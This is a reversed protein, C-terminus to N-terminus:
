NHYFRITRWLVITSILIASTLVAATIVGSFLATTSRDQILEGLAELGEQQRIIREQTESQANRLSQSKEEIKKEIDDIKKENGIKLGNERPSFEKVIVDQLQTTVRVREAEPAAFIAFDRSRASCAMPIYITGAKPLRLRATKMGTRDKCAVNLEENRDENTIFSFRKHDIEHIVTPMHHIECGASDCTFNAAYVEVRRLDSIYLGRSHLCRDLQADSIIRVATEDTSTLLFRDIMGSYAKIPRVRMKHAFNILPIRVFSSITDKSIVIKVLELDYYRSVEERMFIPTLQTYHEKIDTIKDNMEAMTLLDAAIKGHKGEQIINEVKKIQNEAKRGATLIESRFVLVDNDFDM